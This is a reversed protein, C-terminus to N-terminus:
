PRSLRLGLGSVKIGLSEVRFGIELLTALSAAAVMEALMSVLMSALARLVLPPAAEPL